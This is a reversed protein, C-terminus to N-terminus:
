FDQLKQNEVAKAKKRELLEAKKAQRSLSALYANDAGKTERAAYKRDNTKMRKLAANHARATDKEAKRLLAQAGEWSTTAKRDHGTDSKSILHAKDCGFDQYLM